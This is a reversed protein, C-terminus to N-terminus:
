PRLRPHTDKLRIEPTRVAVYGDVGRVGRGREAVPRPSTLHSDNWATLDPADSEFSANGTALEQEYIARVEPWHGARLANITM